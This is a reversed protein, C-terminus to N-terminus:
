EYIIQWNNKYYPNLNEKRIYRHVFKNKHRFEDVHDIYCAFSSDMCHIEVSNKIIDKYDFITYKTNKGLKHNPKYVKNKNLYKKNVHLNRSPDDHVFIYDTMELDLINEKNEPIFFSSWRKEYDVNATRYFWQCFYEGKQIRSSESFIGLKILNNHRRSLALMDADNAVPTFILKEEIDEFMRMINFANHYKVPYHIYDYRKCLERLLGNTIIHDGLGLHQCLFMEKM